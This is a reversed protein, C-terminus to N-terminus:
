SEGLTEAYAILREYRAQAEELKARDSPSQMLYKGWQEYAYDHADEASSVIDEAITPM